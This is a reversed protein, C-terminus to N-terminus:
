IFSAFRPISETAKRGTSPMGIVHMAKPKKLSGTGSKLVKNMRMCKNM